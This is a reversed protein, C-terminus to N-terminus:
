VHHRPSLLAVWRQLVGGAHPCRPSLVAGLAVVVPPRKPVCERKQLPCCGYRGSPLQCCTASDPCASSNDPCTLRRLAVAPVLPQPRAAAGRPRKWAPFKTAMAFDGVPSVCRGRELDCSTARPCCHEEDRCCVAEPMPCCGWAGGAAVCCTTNQPCESAGDPCRLATVAAVAALSLWLRVAARM